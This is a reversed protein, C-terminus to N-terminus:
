HLRLRSNTPYQALKMKYLGSETHFGVVLPAILGNDTCV